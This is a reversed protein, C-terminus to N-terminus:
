FTADLLMCLTDALDDKKKSAIFTAMWHKNIESTELFTRCRDVAAQKRQRYRSKGAGAIDPVKHRADYIITESNPNKIVFYSHLFNELQM